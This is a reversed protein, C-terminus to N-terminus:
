LKKNIKASLIFFTAIGLMLEVMFLGSYSLSGAIKGSAVALILSSLHTIVIQLTFDTGERGPRVFNMSSTYVAVSAMGYTGWLLLIGTFLILHSPFYSHFLFWSGSLVILIVIFVQVRYSGFKRILFGAMLAAISGTATGAIGSMLGIEKMSYGLDVMYPKVMALTGVIGSYFFSLYLLRPFINEQRFFVWIDAFRVRKSVERDVPVIKRRFIAVPILALLVFAALGFILSQWGYKNYIVLLLGSGVLTGLFSGASQMSNGLSRNKKELIRIAFADTAIDQTASFTFALVMLAIILPFDTKLNLFGTMLIVVAYIFESYFIWKMYGRITGGSRDVMPAWLFKLIWPLKILQLLGISELSYNEQRMIVPIVTSFFSMPVAQAIYLSFLVSYKKWNVQNV